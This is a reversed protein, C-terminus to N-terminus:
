VCVLTTVKCRIDVLTEINMAQIQLSCFLPTCGYVFPLFCSLSIGLEVHPLTVKFTCVRPPYFDRDVGIDM